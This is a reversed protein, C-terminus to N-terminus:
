KVEVECYLVQWGVMSLEAEHEADITNGASIVRSMSSTVVNGDKCTLVRTMKVLYKQM